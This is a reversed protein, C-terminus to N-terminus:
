PQTSQCRSMLGEEDHWISVLVPAPLNQEALLPLAPKQLHHAKADAQISVDSAMKIQPQLHGPLSGPM